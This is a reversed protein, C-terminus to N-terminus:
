PKAANRQQERVVLVPCPAHRVVSEAVSGLLAHTFGTRGHTGMIVLDIPERQAVAVIETAPYGLQVLAQAIIHQRKLDEVLASLRGSAEALLAGEIGHPEGAGLSVGRLPLHVVHLLTLEAQFQRAHAIAQQLAMEAGSSFDYPVLIHQLHPTPTTLPFKETM